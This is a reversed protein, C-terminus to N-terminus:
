PRRTLTDVRLNLKGLRYTIQFYFKSLMEAQRAQRSNLRKTTIFYKLNKYDILVLTLKKDTAILLKPRLEDFSLVITLLEKNYIDYNREAPKIKKSFYAIPRQVEKGNIIYKQSAVYATINDSTDTEIITERELDFTAIIPEELFAKKLSVFANKAKKNQEFPPVKGDETPKRTLNTLPSTIKSFKYIFRRYFGVFKLFELVYTTNRPTEQELIAKVKVLDIKMGYSRIIISLFKTEQIYFECKDINLYLGNNALRKIIDNVYKVYENYNDDFVLYDDIYPIIYDDLQKRLIDNIFKQFTALTNYLSFPIINCEYQGFRTNFATKQEYGKTIRIRNFTAIVDLKTYYKKGGVRSITERIILIPYRNKITARNLGRYNYYIRLGGGLKRVVLYLAVIPLKSGYIFEIKSQEELYKRIAKTKRYSM